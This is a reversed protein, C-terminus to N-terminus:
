RVAQKKHLCPMARWCLHHLDEKNTVKEWQQRKTTIKISGPVLSVLAAVDINRMARARHSYFMYVDEIIRM